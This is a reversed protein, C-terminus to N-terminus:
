HCSIRWRNAGPITRRALTFVRRREENYNFTDNGPFLYFNGFDNRISAVVGNKDLSIPEVKWAFKRSSSFDSGEKKTTFVNIRDSDFKSAVNHVLYRSNNWKCNVIYFSLVDGDVPLFKWYNELVPIRDEPYAGSPIWTFVQRDDEGTVFSSAYLNENSMESKILCKVGTISEEESSILNYLISPLSNRLLERRQKVIKNTSDASLKFVRRAEHILRLMESTMLDGKRKMDNFLVTAADIRSSTWPLLKLFEFTKDFNGLQGGYLRRIVEVIAPNISYGLGIDGYVEMFTTISSTQRKAILKVWHDAISDNYPQLTNAFEKMYNECNTDKASLLLIEPLDLQANAKM